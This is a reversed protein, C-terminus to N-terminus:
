PKVIVFCVVRDWEVGVFGIHQDRSCFSIDSSSFMVQTDNGVVIVMSNVIVTRNVFIDSFNQRFELM